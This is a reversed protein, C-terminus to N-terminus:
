LETVLNIGRIELSPTPRLGVGLKGQIDTKGMRYNFCRHTTDKDMGTRRTLELWM